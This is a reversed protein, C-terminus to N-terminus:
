GLLLDMLAPGQLLGLSGQPAAAEDFAQVDDPITRPQWVAVPVPARTHKGTALPVPHDPLVAYAVNGVANAMVRGILRSDFDEIAKIKLQLDQAHSVEDIAEVHAYVFDYGDALAKLVADAKGEYNTDIYGTAGPVTIVDMGLSIGLGKIVDVASVAAATIGYKEALPTFTGARGPSWPWVANAPLGLPTLIRESDAIIQCLTKVTWKRRESEAWGIHPTFLPRPPHYAVEAGNHDDPKECTVGTSHRKGSLVLLNRYSVGTHFRVTDSGLEANLAAIATEADHRSIHGGASDMLFGDKVSVLSCRFAIDESGLPIGRSIAELVGRGCFETELDCGLVSMNAVDSSSPYGQPLTLVTGSAGRAAISDMAPTRAHQLPTKGALAPVPEDAMGDGLFIVTKHKEKM